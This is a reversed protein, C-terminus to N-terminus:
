LYIDRLLLTPPKWVGNALSSSSRSTTVGGGTAGFFFLGPRGGDGDAGRVLM